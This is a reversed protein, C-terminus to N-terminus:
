IAVGEGTVYNNRISLLHEDLLQSFKRTGISKKQVIKLLGMDEFILHYVSVVEGEHLSCSWQEGWLIAAGNYADLLKCIKCFRGGNQVYLGGASQGHVLSRRSPFFFICLPVVNESM